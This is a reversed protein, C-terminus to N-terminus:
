RPVALAWATLEACRALNEAPALRDLMGPVAETRALWGESGGATHAIEAAPM